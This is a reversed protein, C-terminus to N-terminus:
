MLSDTRTSDPGRWRKRTVDSDHFSTSPERDPHNGQEEGQSGILYLGPRAAGVFHLAGHDGNRESLGRWQDHYFGSKAGFIEHRDAGGYGRSRLDYPPLLWDREIRNPLPFNHPQGIHLCRSPHKGFDDPDWGLPNVAPTLDTISSKNGGTVCTTQEMGLYPVLDVTATNNLARNWSVTSKM